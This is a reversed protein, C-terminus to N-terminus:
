NGIEMDCEWEDNLLMKNVSADVAGELRHLANRLFNDTGQGRKKEAETLEERVLNILSRIFNPNRDALRCMFTFYAEASLPLFKHTFAALTNRMERKVMSSPGDTCVLLTYLMEMAIARTPFTENCLFAHQTLSYGTTRIFLTIKGYDERAVLTGLLNQLMCMITRANTKPLCRQLDVYITLLRPMAYLIIEENRGCFFLILPRLADDPNPLKCFQVMWKTLMNNVNDGIVPNANYDMKGLVDMVKHWVKAMDEILDQQVNRDTLVSFPLFIKQFALNYLCTANSKIYFVQPCERLALVLVAFIRQRIIGKPDLIWKDFHQFITHLKMKMEMQINSNADRFRKGVSRFFLEILIANSEFMEYEPIDCLMKFEALNYVVRTYDFIKERDYYLTMKLWQRILVKADFLVLIKSCKTIETLYILVQDSHATPCNAFSSFVTYLSTKQVQYPCRFQNYITMRAAIQAICPPTSVKQSFQIKVIPYIHENIAKFFEESYSSTQFNNQILMGDLLQQWKNHSCHQVYNAIWPGIFLTRDKESRGFSKKEYNKNYMMITGEAIVEMAPLLRSGYKRYAAEIKQFFAIAHGTKDFNSNGFSVLLALNTQSAIVIRNIIADVPLNSPGGILQVMQMQKSVRPYDEQYSTANIMTVLMLGLNYIAQHTMNEYKKPGLKLFIRNFIIQVKTKLSQQTFHRIVSSLLILFISFSSKTQVLGDTSDLTALERAQEILNAVSRNISEFDSLSNQKLRFSSNLRVSFYDWLIIVTDVRVPWIGTIIPKLLTLFIRVQEEKCDSNIFEKLVEDIIIYNDGLKALTKKNGDPSQHKDYLQALVNILWMKFIYGDKRGDLVSPMLESLSRWFSLDGEYQEAVVMMGLWMLKICNCHFPSEDIIDEATNIRYKQFALTLLDAMLDQFIKNVPEKMKKKGFSKMSTKSITEISLKTRIVFLLILWRWELVGHYIEYGNCDKENVSNWGYMLLPDILKPLCNLIMSISDYLLKENFITANGLILRLFRTIELRQARINRNVPHEMFMMKQIRSRAIKSLEYALLDYMQYVEVGLLSIVTGGPELVLGFSLGGDRAFSRLCDSKTSNNYAFSKCDFM